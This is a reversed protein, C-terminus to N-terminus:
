SAFAAKEARSHLAFFFLCGSSLGYSIQRFLLYFRTM